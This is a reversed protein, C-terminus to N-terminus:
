DATATLEQDAEHERELSRELFEMGVNQGRVEQQQQNRCLVVPTHVPDPPLEDEETSAVMNLERHQQKKKESHKKM